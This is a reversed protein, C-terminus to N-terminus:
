PAFRFPQIDLSLQHAPDIPNGGAVALGAYAFYTGPPEAGGFTYQFPVTLPEAPVNAQFPVPVPGVAVGIQGKGEDVFSVFTAFDPLLAGLYVDVMAAALGPSVAGRYTITQGTAFVAGDTEVAAVLIGFEFAGIDCAAGQPRAFGRQDTAPCGVGTGGNIAPSGPLLAHTQTPGGYDQLPGLLPSRANLDGPATLSAQCSDDQSLNNGQSTLPGYCNGGAPSNAIITNRLM